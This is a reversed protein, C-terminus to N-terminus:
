IFCIIAVIIVWDNDSTWIILKLLNYNNYLHIHLKTFSLCDNNTQIEPNDHVGKFSDCSCCWTVKHHYSFQFILRSKGTLQLQIEIRRTVLDSYHAWICERYLKNKGVRIYISIYYYKSHESFLNFNSRSSVVLM